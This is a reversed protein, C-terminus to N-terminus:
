RTGFNLIRPSIGRSRRVDELHTVNNLVAVIKGKEVVDLGGRPGV